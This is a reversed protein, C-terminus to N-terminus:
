VSGSATCISYEGSSTNSEMVVGDLEITCTIDGPAGGRQASVYAFSGEEVSFSEEWPLTAETEQSTDGSENEYTISAQRSEGDVRYVLSHSSSTPVDTTGGSGERDDTVAVYVILGGILLVGIIWKDRNSKAPQTPPPPKPQQDPRPPEPLDM